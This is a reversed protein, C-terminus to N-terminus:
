AGGLIIAVLTYGTTENRRMDVGFDTYSCDRIVDYSYGELLAAKIAVAESADAGQLLYGKTGTYGLDKLGPMTDVPAGPPEKATPVRTATHNLYKDTMENFVAAAQEAIPEYRL